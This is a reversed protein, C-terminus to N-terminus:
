DLPKYLHDVFRSWGGRTKSEVVYAIGGLRRDPWYAFRSRGGPTEVEFALNPRPLDWPELLRGQAQRGDSAFSWMRLENEGDVGFLALEESARGDPFTWTVILQVHRGGLIRDFRRECRYPGAESDGEAVWAGLLPDLQGLKGTGPKWEVAM